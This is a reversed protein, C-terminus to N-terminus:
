PKNKVWGENILERIPGYYEIEDEGRVGIKKLYTKRYIFTSLAYVAIFAVFGAILGIYWKSGVLFGFTIGIALAIMGCITELRDHAKACTSCREIMFSRETYTTTTKLGTLGLGVKSDIKKYMKKEIPEGAKFIEKSCYYCIPEANM